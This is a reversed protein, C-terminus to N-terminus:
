KLTIPERNDLDIRGSPTTWSIGVTAKASFPSSVVTVGRESSAGGPNARRKRSFEELPVMFSKQPEVSGESYTVTALKSSRVVVAVEAAVDQGVNKVVLQHSRSDWTVDWVIFSNDTQRAEQAKVLDNAERSLVNAEHSLNNAANSMTVADNAHRNAKKAHKSQLGTFVASVGAAVAALGSIVYPAIDNM